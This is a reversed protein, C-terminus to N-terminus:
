CDKLNHGQGTEGDDVRPAPGGIGGMSACPELSFNILDAALDRQKLLFQTDLISAHNWSYRGFWPSPPRVGFSTRTPPLGAFSLARM